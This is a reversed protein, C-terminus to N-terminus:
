ITFEEVGSWKLRKNIDGLMTGAAKIKEIANLFDRKCYLYNVALLSVVTGFGRNLQLQTIKGSPNRYGFVAGEINYYTPPLEKPTLANLELVKYGDAGNPLIAKEAKVYIGKKVPTAPEFMWGFFSFPSGSFRYVINDGHKEKACITFDKGLLPGIARYYCEESGIFDKPLRDIDKLKVKDGVKYRPKPMKVEKFIMHKPVRLSLAIADAIYDMTEELPTM